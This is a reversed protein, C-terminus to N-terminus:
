LFQESVQPTLDRERRPRDRPGGSQRSHTM